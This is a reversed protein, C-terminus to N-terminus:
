CIADITIKIQRVKDKVWHARFDVNHKDDAILCGPSRELQEAITIAADLDRQARVDGKSRPPQIADNIAAGLNDIDGRPKNPGHFAIDIRYPGLIPIPHYRALHDRIQQKYDKYDHPIYMQGGRSVPRKKPMPRIGEITYEPM